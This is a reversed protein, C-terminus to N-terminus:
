EVADEYIRLEWYTLRSNEFTFIYLGRSEFRYVYRDGDFKSYTYDEGFVAFVDQETLNEDLKLGGALEVEVTSGSESKIGLVIGETYASANEGPYYSQVTIANDKSDKYMVVGRTEGSPVEYDDELVYGSKPIWGDNLFVDVGCLLQYVLGDITITFDEVKDSMQIDPRPASEPKTGETNGPQGVTSGDKTPVTAGAQGKTGETEGPTDDGEGCACLSFCMVVALLLAILKKM